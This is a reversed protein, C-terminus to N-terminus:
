YSGEGDCINCIRDGDCVVCEEYGDGYNVRGTGGCGECYGTGNCGLCLSNGNVIGPAGQGAHFEMNEPVALVVRWGGAGGQFLSEFDSAAFVALEAPTESNKSYRYAMQAGEVNYREMKFGMDKLAESYVVVFHSMQDVTMELDYIYFDYTVGNSETNEGYYEADCGMAPGPDPMWTRKETYHVKQEEEYYAEKAEYPEEYQVEQVPQEYSSSSYNDDSGFRNFIMAALAVMVIAKKM